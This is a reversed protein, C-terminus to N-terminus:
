WGGLRRSHGSCQPASRYDKGSSWAEVHTIGNARLLAMRGAADHEYFEVLAHVRM